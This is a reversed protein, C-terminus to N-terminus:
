LLSGNVILQATYNSSGAANEAVCTYNGAHMAAVSDISLISSKQGMQYTSVGM